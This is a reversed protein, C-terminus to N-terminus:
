GLLPKEEKRLGLIGMLRDQLDSTESLVTDIGLLLELDMKEFTRVLRYLPSRGSLTDLILALVVHGASVDMEGPCLRNIEDVLGIRNVFASVVPPFRVDSLRCGDLLLAM